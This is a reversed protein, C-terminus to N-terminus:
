YVERARDCFAPAFVVNSPDINLVEYIEKRTKPRSSAATTLNVIDAMMAGIQFTRSVGRRKTLPDDAM